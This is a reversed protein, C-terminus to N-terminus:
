PSAFQLCLGLGPLHLHCLRGIRELALHRPSRDESAVEVWNEIEDRGRQGSDFRFRIVISKGRVITIILYLNNCSSKLQLNIKLFRHLKIAINTKLVYVIFLIQM